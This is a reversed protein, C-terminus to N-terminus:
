LDNPPDSTKRILCQDVPRHANETLTSIANYRVASRRQVIIKYGCM